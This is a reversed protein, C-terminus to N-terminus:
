SAQQRSALRLYHGDRLRMLEHHTGREVIAGGAIVCIVDAREITSLRHAIVLTTRRSKRLLEDLAEQVVRESEPDLASTAEDLLLIAPDRVISRAIAVRQKQGGSLQGGREGVDTRYGGPFNVIFDHANAKKAAQLCEDESADEKGYAINDLITGAFLVPEQQVLAMQKRMWGLNLERLDTGDLHVSGSTPDYFRQLLAIASSKGSGSPGCFAVTQGADIRLNFDQFVMVDPRTPYRLAVHRFEVDGRVSELRQGRTDYADILPARDLTSFIHNLALRAKAKDAQWQSAVAAGSASFMVPFLVQLVDKPEIWGRNIFLNAIFIVGGFMLFSVASNYASAFSTAVSRKRDQKGELKLIELYRDLMRQRLGFAAVTKVHGMVESVLPGASTDNIRRMAKIMAATGMALMPLFVLSCVTLLWSAWIAIGLGSGLCFLLQIV